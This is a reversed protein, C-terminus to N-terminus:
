DGRVRRFDCARGSLRWMEKEMVGTATRDSLLEQLGWHRPTPIEDPSAWAYREWEPSPRPVFEDGVDMLFTEYHFQGTEMHHLHILRGSHRYGTEEEVERLATDAASEGAEGKGGWISWTGGSPSAEPRLSLLFRGTRRSLIMCGAGHRPKGPTAFSSQAHKM